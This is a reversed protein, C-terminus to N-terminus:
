MWIYTQISRAPVEANIYGIAPDYLNVPVAADQRNLMVVVVEKQTTLFAIVELKNDENAHIDIRVSGPTVFKSFHGLHYFMPQKYFVDKDADVIIPSDVYNAVWNPGGQMNLAMNWDVWGSVWHQLDTIIDHSYSEGREWNGLMVHKQGPFSGACAETALLFYDPHKDHTMSLVNAPVFSNLYWHVAVGAIYQAADPDKLVVDAWHPLMLRNDDLIMVKVDSHGREKLTPGLDLKIFDRQSTENFYMSQFSFKYIAGDTPENQATVGWLKIGHKAYEEIFRAFYMAWAKYYKGGPQGILAGQGTENQNDKMWYPASWPSGFFSLTRESMNMARQILPVKYMLDEKALAFHQLALDGPVDDYSYPHTSFDCSAMPIRGFTYEIGDKAFYSQLIKDQVDKTVNLINIGAADTFAGGFGLITQYTVTRNVTFTVSNTINPKSDIKYVRQKLRDLTKSSTYVAYHGKSVQPEQVTDCESATCVCVFSTDGFEQKTCETQADIVGCVFTHSLLIWSFTFIVCKQSRTVAM